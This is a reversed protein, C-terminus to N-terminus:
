EHLSRDSASPKVLLAIEEASLVPLPSVRKLVEWGLTGFFDDLGARALPYPITSGGGVLGRARQRLAHWLTDVGYSVVAYRRSVRLMERLAATKVEHPVRHLLRLCVVVDVQGAAFPLHTIDLRVFRGSGGMARAGARAIRLMSASVDGGVFTIPLAHLVPLLKGTGCPIDAVTSITNGFGELLRRVARQEAKAVLVHKFKRPSLGTTFQAHYAQAIEDDQYHRRTDAEYSFSPKSSPSM